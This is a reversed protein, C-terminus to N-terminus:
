LHGLKQGMKSVYMSEFFGSLNGIESDSAGKSEATKREKPFDMQAPPLPAPPNFFGGQKEGEGCGGRNKKSPPAAAVTACMERKRKRALDELRPSHSNVVFSTQAMETSAACGGQGGNQSGMKTHPTHFHTHPLGHISTKRRQRTDNEPSRENSLFEHLFPRHERPQAWPTRDERKMDDGESGPALLTARQPCGPNERRRRMQYLGNPPSWKPLCKQRSNKQPM